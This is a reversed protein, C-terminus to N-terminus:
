LVSSRAGVDSGMVDYDFILIGEVLFKEKGDPDDNVHMFIFMADITDILAAGTL